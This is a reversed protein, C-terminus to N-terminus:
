FKIQQRELSSAWGFQVATGSVTKANNNIDILWGIMRGYFVKTSNNLSKHAWSTSIVLLRTIFKETVADTFTRFPKTSQYCWAIVKQLFTCLRDCMAFLRIFRLAVNGCSWFHLERTVCQKSPTLWAYSCVRVHLFAVTDAFVDGNGWLYVGLDMVELAKDIQIMIGSAFRTSFHWYLAKSQILPLRDIDDTVFTCELNTM